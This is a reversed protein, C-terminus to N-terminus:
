VPWEIFGTVGLMAVLIAWLVIGVIFGGISHAAKSWDRMVGFAIALVIACILGLTTSVGTLLAIGLLIASELDGYAASMLMGVFLWVGAMVLVFVAMDFM